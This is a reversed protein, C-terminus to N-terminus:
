KYVPKVPKLVTNVNYDWADKKEKNVEGSYGMPYDLYPYDDDGKSFIRSIATVLKELEGAEKAGPLDQMKELVDELTTLQMTLETKKAQLQDMLDGVAEVSCGDELCSQAMANLDEATVVPAEAKAMRVESTARSTTVAPNHIRTAIPGMFGAVSAVLCLFVSASLRVM